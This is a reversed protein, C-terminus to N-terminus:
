IVFRRLTVILDVPPGTDFGDFHDVAAVAQPSDLMAPLDFTLPQHHDIGVTAATVAAAPASISVRCPSAPQSCVNRTPDTLNVPRNKQAPQTKV